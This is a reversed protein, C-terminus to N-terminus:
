RITCADNDHVRIVGMNRQRTHNVCHCPSICPYRITLAGSSKKAEQERSTIFYRKGKHLIYQRAQFAEPARSQDRQPNGRRNKKRCEPEKDETAATLGHRQKVTIDVKAFGGLHDIFQSLGM